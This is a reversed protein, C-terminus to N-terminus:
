DTSTNIKRNLVPLISVMQTRIPNFQHNHLNVLSKAYCTSGLALRRSPMAKTSWKPVLLFVSISHEKQMGAKHSEKVNLFLLFLSFANKASEEKKKLLM